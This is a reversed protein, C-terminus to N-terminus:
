TPAWENDRHDADFFEQFARDAFGIGEGCQM